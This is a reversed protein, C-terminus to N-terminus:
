GGLPGGRRQAYRADEWALCRDHRVLGAALTHGTEEAQAQRALFARFDSDTQMESLTKM